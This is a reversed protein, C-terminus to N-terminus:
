PRPVLRYSVQSEAMIARRYRPYFLRWRRGWLRADPGYVAQLIPDIEARNADYNALWQEHAPLARRELALGARRHFSRGSSPDPWPQAHDRRHLFIARDLGGQEWSRVSLAADRPLCAPVAPWRAEALWWIRALLSRWDSMHEFMEVSVVRDYRGQAVFDTDATIIRLNSALGGGKGASRYSAARSVATIQAAPYREAMYFSLSGWCGLELIEQGDSLDAHAM